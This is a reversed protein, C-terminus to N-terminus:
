LPWPRAFNTIIPGGFTINPQDDLFQNAKPNDLNKEFRPGPWVGLPLDDWNVDFFPAPNTAVARGQKRIELHLHPNRTGDYPAISDGTNGVVQGPAVRQGAEVYRSRERLHGYVAINGDDLHLVVNHPPSGYDGDVAIVTGPAIAVVPTGYATAFDIGFHIGQGQVYTTNRGRYGGTTVGYWQSIYWTSPSSAPTFPLRYPKGNTGPDPPAPMAPLPAGEAAPLGAPITLNWLAKDDASVFVIQRGDPSCDWDCNAVRFSVAAPDLLRRTAGSEPSVEWLQHPDAASARAPMMVLRNDQTWRYSGVV